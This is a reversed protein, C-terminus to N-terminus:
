RVTKGPPELFFADAVLQELEPVSNLFAQPKEGVLATALVSDIGSVMFAATLPPPSHRSRTERRASDLASSLRELVEKRRRLVAPGAVHAEVLLGRALNPQEGAFSALELLTARLGGRWSPADAGARLLREALADAQADYAARYCQEFSAFHRYFQTRYGGYGNLVAEVTTGRYGLEGSAVLAARMIRGALASDAHASEGRIRALESRPTTARPHDVGGGGSPEPQEEHM